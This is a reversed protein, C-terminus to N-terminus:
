LHLNDYVRKGEAWGKVEEFDRCVHTGGTGDTGDRDMWGLTQAQGELTLDSACMVENRLYNFCHDMHGLAGEDLEWDRSRIQLALTDIFSQMHYLCHIQHFVAIAFMEKGPFEPFHM